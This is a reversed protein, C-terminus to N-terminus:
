EVARNTEALEFFIFIYIEIKTMIQDNEKLVILRKHDFEEVLKQM